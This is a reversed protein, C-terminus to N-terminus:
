KQTNMENELRVNKNGCDSDTAARAFFRIYHGKLRGRTWKTWSCCLYTLRESTSRPRLSVTIRLPVVILNEWRHRGENVTSMDPVGAPEAAKDIM